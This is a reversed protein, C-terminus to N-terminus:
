RFKELLGLLLKEEADLQHIKQRRADGRLKDSAWKYSYSLVTNKETLLQHIYMEELKGLKHKTKM